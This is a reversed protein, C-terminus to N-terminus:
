CPTSSGATTTATASGRPRATPTTTARPTRRSSASRSASRATVLERAARGHALLMHHIATLAGRLDKEGPAHLGDAHGLIGHVWPENITCWRTVRDGYADFCARAYEAFADVIDRNRWGGEDQLAQPLDWHYLTVLPEINKELLADILRDYHEFGRPEREGRGSPFLRPWALSLRYANVGLAAILDVDDRWRRYHDCAYTGLDGSEGAFHDWISPGRGDADLSGEVQFASTATGWLFGHPFTVRLVEECAHLLVGISWAHSLPQLTGKEGFCDTQLYREAAMGRRAGFDGDERAIFQRFCDLNELASARYPEGLRMLEPLCILGFAHLHQNPPSANDAGRTKFGYRGLVTDPDFHVDYTYRFTLTWDAARRATEWDELAVFAM